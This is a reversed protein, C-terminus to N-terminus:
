SLNLHIMAFITNNKYYGYSLTYIYNNTNLHMDEDTLQKTTGAMAVLNILKGNSIVHEAQRFSPKCLLIKLATRFHNQLVTTSLLKRHTLQQALNWTGM